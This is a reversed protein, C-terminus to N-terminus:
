MNLIDCIDTYTLVVNEYKIYLFAGVRSAQPSRDSPESLSRAAQLYSPHSFVGPAERLDSRVRRLINPETRPARDMAEPRAILLYPTYSFHGRIFQVSGNFVSM